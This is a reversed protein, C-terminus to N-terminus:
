FPEHTLPLRVIFRSGKQLESFAQIEGNHQSVISQAISLGLGTGGMERTRVKDTRWFREYIHPLDDSAIGIGTDEIVVTAWADSFSVEQSVRGGCATYKVANDLLIFFLRALADRQGEVEPGDRGTLLLVPTQIGASRLRRTVRFGDLYPLMVDLVIIDFSSSEAARLGAAGDPSITVSNGEEELARGIYNEVEPDDEVLLIRM